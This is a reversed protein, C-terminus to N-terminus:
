SKIAKYLAVCAAGLGVLATVLKVLDTLQPLSSVVFAAVATGLPAAINILPNPHDGPTM